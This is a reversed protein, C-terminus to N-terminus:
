KLQSGTNSTDQDRNHEDSPHQIQIAREAEAEKKRHFIFPINGRGEM